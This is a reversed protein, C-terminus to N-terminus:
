ESIGYLTWTFGTEVAGGNLMLAWGPQPPSQQGDSILTIEEGTDLRVADTGERRNEWLAPRTGKALAGSAYLEDYRSSLLEKVVVKRPLTSLNKSSTDTSQQERM